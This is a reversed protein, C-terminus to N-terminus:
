AGEVPKAAVLPADAALAGVAAVIAALWAGDAYRVLLEANMRVAEEQLVPDLVRTLVLAKMRPHSARGRLVLHLGNYAGLRLETVLLDPAAADLAAKGDHFDEALRVEVGLAGLAEAVLARDGGEIAVILASRHTAADPTSKM